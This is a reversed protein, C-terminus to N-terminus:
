LDFTVIANSGIVIQNYTNGFFEFCFPMNIAPSWTDDINILVSNGGSYPYPNYPISTVAYASTGVSGQVTATLNTCQGSCVNQDLGADVSPCASAQAFTQQLGPLAISFLVLFVQFLLKKM